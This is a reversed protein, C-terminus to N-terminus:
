YNTKLRNEWIEATEHCSKWDWVAYALYIAQIPEIHNLYSWSHLPVRKESKKKEKKHWFTKLLRFIFYRSCLFSSRRYRIFHVHQVLNNCPHTMTTRTQLKADYTLRDILWGILWDFLQGILWDMLWDNLWDFLCVILCDLLWILSSGTCCYWNRGIKWTDWETIADFCPNLLFPIAYVPGFWPLWTRSHCMRTSISDRSRPPIFSCVISYHHVAHSHLTSERGARSRYTALWLVIGYLEQVQRVM